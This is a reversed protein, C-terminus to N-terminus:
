NEEHYMGIECEEDPYPLRITGVKDHLLYPNYGLARVLRIMVATIPKPLNSPMIFKHNSPTWNTVHMKESMESWAALVKKKLELPLEDSEEENFMVRFGKECDCKSMHELTKFVSWDHKVNTNCDIKGNQKDLVHQRKFATTTGELLCRQMASAGAELLSTKEHETMEKTGSTLEKQLERLQGM